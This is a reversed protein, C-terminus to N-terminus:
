LLRKINNRIFVDPKQEGKRVLQLYEIEANKYIKKLKDKDSLIDISNDKAILYLVKGVFCKTQYHMAIGNKIKNLWWNYEGSYTFGNKMYAKGAGLYDCIMELAYKFPMQVPEGGKDLNDFWMEYHHPNRGRHHFWAKSYGCEKKCIKIPSIKGNAYRIAESFEVYSFKSLDHLIGQKYLGAKFCYYGVYYKHMLVTKIHTYIKNLTKLIRM